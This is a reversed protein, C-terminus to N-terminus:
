VYERSEFTSPTAIQKMYGPEIYRSEVSFPTFRTYGSSPSLKSYTKYTSSSNLFQQYAPSDIAPPGPIVVIPTTRPDPLQPQAKAENWALATVTLIAAVLGTRFM